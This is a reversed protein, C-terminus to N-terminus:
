ARQPQKIIWEENIEDELANSIMIEINSQSSKVVYLTNLVKSLWTM